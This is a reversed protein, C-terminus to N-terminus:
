SARRSDFFCGGCPTEVFAQSPKNLAMETLASLAKRAATARETEDLFSGM